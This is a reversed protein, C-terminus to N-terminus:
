RRSRGYHATKGNTLPEEHRHRLAPNIPAADLCVIEGDLVADREDLHQALASCLRPFSKFVHNRRSVLRVDGNVYALARFGDYKLEFLWDPHDFPGPVRSLAM